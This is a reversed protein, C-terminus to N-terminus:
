PNSSRDASRVALVSKQESGNDAVVVKVGKAAIENRYSEPTKRDTVVVDIAELPVTVILSERGFKTHDALLFTENAAEVAKRKVSAEMPFPDSVGRQASLSNAGIFCKDVHIQSLFHEAEPGTLSMTRANFQGGVCLITIGPAAMLEMLTHPGMVFVTLNRKARLQQALALSTTSPDVILCDGDEVMEAARRAIEQKESVCTKLRGAFDPEMTLSPKALVGGYSKELVNLEQLHALDRHITMESVSFLQSLESVTITGRQKVLDAIHRRREAPFM